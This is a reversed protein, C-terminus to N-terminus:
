RCRHSPAIWRRSRPSRTWACCSRGARASQSLPRRRRRAEGRLAQRQLARVDQRPATAPRARVLRAAGHRPQSRPSEGDHPLELADRRAAQRAADRPRDRRDEGPQDSAQARARPARRWPGEPGGVCVARAVVQGDGAVGRGNPRNGHEAPWRRGDAARPRAAGRPPSGHALARAQRAGRAPQQDAAVAAHRPAYM